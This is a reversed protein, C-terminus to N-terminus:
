SDDGLQVEIEYKPLQSMSQKNVTGDVFFSAIAFKKREEVFIHKRNIIIDYSTM